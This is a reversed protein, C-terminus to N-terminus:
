FKLNKIEKFVIYPKNIIGSDFIKLDLLNTLTNWIKLTIVNEGPVLYEIVDFIYPKWLRIGVKKGNIQLEAIERLDDSKIYAKKDKLWDEKIYIRQSLEISGKFYPYGQKTWSGDKIALDEKEIIYGNDHASDPTLKFDGIIFVPDYMIEIPKIGTKGQFARERLEFKIKIKNKGKRIIKKLDVEKLQHDLYTSKKFDKILNGNIEIENLEPVRDFVAKLESGYDKIYFSSEIFVTGGLMNFWGVGESFGQTMKWNNIVLVNPDNRKIIWKEKFDLIKDPQLAIEIHKIEGNDLLDIYSEENENGSIATFTKASKKSESGIILMNTKVVRTEDIPENELVIFNSELKEPNYQVILRGNEIRYVNIPETMGTEPKWIYPKGTSRLSIELKYQKEDSNVIFYFDKDEKKWHSYYINGSIANLFTIDIDKKIMKELSKKIFDIPDSKYLPGCKLLQLNEKKFNKSEIIEINDKGNRYNLVLEDEKINFEKNFFYNFEKLSKGENNKYPLMSLCLVKGGKEIFNIIKKAINDRLTTMPPIILVSYKEDKISLKGDKIKCDEFIDQGLIDYDMNIRLLKDTIYSFDDSIDWPFRETTGTTYDAWLSEMPYLLAIDAVHISDTIITSIRTFYKSYYKYNDWMPNQYFESPPCERKRQSAISYHFAHPVIFNIGMMCQWDTLIKIDEFRQKWGGLAFSESMVRKKGYQHAVSSVVKNPIQWVNEDIGWRLNLDGEVNDLSDIGPIHMSRMDNIVNGQYQMQWILFPNCLRFHGILQLNNRECWDNLRKVYNIEFMRTLKYWFDHRVKYTKDGIDAVLAPLYDVISYDFEKKFEDAFISSWQIASCKDRMITYFGPEDTFVKTITKGFHEKFRKKYEEHTTKLFYDVATPNLLDIYKGYPFYWDWGHPQHFPCDKEEPQPFATQPHYINFEKEVFVFIIDLNGSNEIQLRGDKLYSKLNILDKVKFKYDQQKHGSVFRAGTIAVVNGEEVKEDVIKKDSCITWSIDLYKMSYEPHDDLVRTGSMGSPWDEEDYIIADMGLKQSEKIIHEIKKFWEESLYKVELGYRAHMVYGSLGKEKMEKIQWSLEEEDLKENLFWFPAPGLRNDPNKFENLLKLVNM